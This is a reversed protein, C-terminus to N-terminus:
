FAKSASIMLAQERDRYGAVIPATVSQKAHFTYAYAADLHVGFMDGGAGLSLRHGSQDAIARQFASARNAGQEYAYGFRFTTDPLWYWTVGTKLALTDKLDVAHKITGGIVDLSKIRSWREYAIDAELRFANAMDHSVGLTIQEPLKLDVMQSGSTVKAKTGSRLMAGVRWLPVPKWNVGVNVGFSVKDKGSFTAAGQTMNISTRYVDIGHAVALTSSLAYVVDVSLRDSKISTREGGWINESEFPQTFALSVGIDSDHSMWAAHLMTGNKASGSNSQIAGSPLKASSNRGRSAFDGEVHVGGDLWAIAAPNYSAATVDAVGAVMANAVGVGSASFDNNAFGAAQASIVGGGCACLLGVTAFLRKM